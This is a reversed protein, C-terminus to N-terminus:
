RLKKYVIKQVNSPLVRLIFIALAYFFYSKPLHLKKIAYIKANFDNKAKAFGRKKFFDKSVRFKLLPLNINGFVYGQSALNIWFFYDQTNMFDPNYFNGEKFVSASILVSPHNFPCRKIIRDKLERDNSIMRKYYIENGNENIEIVDSGLVDINNDIAFGLQAKLRHKHSIDDADMRAFYDFNYNELCHHILKNMANALGNNEVSYLVFVGNMELNKIYNLIDDSIPGDIYIFLKKNVHSQLLISEVALEVYKLEDSKYISMIVAVNKSEIIKSSVIKQDVNWFNNM